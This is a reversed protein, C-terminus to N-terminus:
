YKGGPRGFQLSYEMHRKKGEYNTVGYCNPADNDIEVMFPLPDDPEQVINLHKVFRFYSAHTFDGDPKHGSGMTPSDTGAPTVTYGGFEVQGAGNFSSFLAAPFYGVDKNLVKLWWNGGKDRVGCYKLVKIILPDMKLYIILMSYLNKKILDNKTTRWIPVTREPCRVKEFISISKIPLNQVRIESINREFIPKRQLKHNKLLPHDFAPQKNIDVCDVIYGSMTHISKIPPKNLINLQRELELDEKLVSQMGHDRHGTITAVLCMVLLLIQIMKSM